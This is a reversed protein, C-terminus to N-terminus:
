IQRNPQKFNDLQNTEQKRDVELSPERVNILLRPTSVGM